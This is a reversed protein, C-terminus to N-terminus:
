PMQGTNFWNALNTFMNQYADGAMGVGAIITLSLVCTILGYEIATAGTENKFFRLLMVRMVQKRDGLSFASGNLFTLPVPKVM